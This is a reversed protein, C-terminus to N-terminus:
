KVIGVQGQQQQSFQGQGQSVNGVNGASVNTSGPKPFFVGTFTGISANSVAPIVQEVMTKNIGQQGITNAYVIKGNKQDQVLTTGLNLGNADSSRATYIDYGPIGGTKSVGEMAGCGALLSLVAALAVYKSLKRVMIGRRKHDNQGYINTM